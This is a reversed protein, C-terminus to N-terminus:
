LDRPTITLDYTDYPLAISTTYHRIKEPHMSTVNFNQMITAFTVMGFDMLINRGLCTRKGTSFPFFHPINKKLTLIEKKIPKNLETMESIKRTKSSDNSENESEVGSDHESGRRENNIEIYSKNLFREPNYEKPNEWYKEDTNLKYNNIMIVTGKEITYGDVNANEMAVHPVIPSSCTRLTENIVAMTYPISDVDFVTIQRQGMGTFEDLEKQLTAAVKPHKAMFGLLLMVVNGLASSGGLFDELTFLIAEKTFITEHKLAKLLADTFDREEDDDALTAERSDIVRKLIFKRVTAAYNNLTKLDNKYFPALWPFFDIPRGQNIEWFLNDFIKVIEQFELDDDEFRTSCMYQSFLNLATSMIIPKLKLDEGRNFSEMGKIKLTSILIKMESTAM